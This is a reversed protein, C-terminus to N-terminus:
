RSEQTQLLLATSSLRHLLLSPPHTRLSTLANIWRLLLSLDSPPPRQHPLVSTTPLRLLSSPSFLKSRVNKRGCRARGKRRRRWRNIRAEMRMM